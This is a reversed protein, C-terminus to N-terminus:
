NAVMTTSAALATSLKPPWTPPNEQAALLSLIAKVVSANTLVHKAISDYIEQLRPNDANEVGFIEASFYLL